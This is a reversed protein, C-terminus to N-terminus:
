EDVYLNVNRLERIIQYARVESIGLHEELFKAPVEKKTFRRKKPNDTAFFRMHLYAQFASSSLRKAKVFKLARVNLLINKNM